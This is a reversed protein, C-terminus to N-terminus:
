INAKSNTDYDCDKNSCQNATKNKKILPYNCKPCNKNLPKKNIIFDCNPYQDCGYVTKKRKTVKKVINGKECKPCKINLENISKTYKCKPFGPCALFKGFRSMKYILTQGCEPCKEDTTENKLFDVKKVEEYKEDLNQKFPKYFKNLVDQWQLKNLAIKDLEDEIKSTLEYDAINKFHDNLIEYTKRGIETPEFFKNDNYLVYGRELLISIISSYTSPRGIGFKELTKVLSADNFRAPPLTFHQKPNIKAIEFVDDLGVKVNNTSEIIPLIKTFGDFKITQFDSKFFYKKTTKQPLFIINQKEIIAPQMQSAVFRKWILDYIKYEDPTLFSKIKDPSRYADTARIAEHAEQALKTKTKYYNPSEPLYNKGYSEEIYSRASNIAIPSLSLSDTRMYTILGVRSGNLEIGEYLKQAVMMTKKVSFKYLQYASQQLTSTTLPPLPRKTSNSINLDFIKVPKDKIENVVDKLDLEQKFTMKPLAKNEIKFLEAEIEQLKNKLLINLSWFEEQKFAEIEKEREVVLKLAPTQVRGASLGKFLKKWLFPSLNYGVLRDLLRRAQQSYVLNFDIKKPNKIAEFIADPTIEHFVIREYNADEIKLAEKLHWAIAEGERDEDTALIIKDFGAVEKKLQNVFKIKDKPTIYKPEFNKEVDIGLTSKPLNRVHGMSAIIKYDKSKLFSSITKAKSPSEVIVLTKM